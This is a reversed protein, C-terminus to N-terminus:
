SSKSFPSAQRLIDSEAGVERYLARFKGDIVFPETGAYDGLLDMRRAARSAITWWTGDLAARAQAATEIKRTSSALGGVDATLQEDFDDLDM